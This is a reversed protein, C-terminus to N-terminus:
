DKTVEIILDAITDVADRQYDRDGSPNRLVHQQLKALSAILVRSLKLRDDDGIARRYLHNLPRVWAFCQFVMEGSKAAATAEEIWREQIAIVLWPSYLPADEFGPLRQEAGIAMSDVSPGAEIRIEPKLMLDMSLEAAHLFPGNIFESTLQGICDYFADETRWKRLVGYPTRCHKAQKRLDLNTLGLLAAHFKKRSLGVPQGKPTGAREPEVYEGLKNEIFNGLVGLPAKPIIQGVNLTGPM